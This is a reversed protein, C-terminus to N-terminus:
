SIKKPGIAVLAQQSQPKSKKKPPPPGQLVSALPSEVNWDLCCRVARANRAYREVVELPLNHLYSVLSEDIRAVPWKIM